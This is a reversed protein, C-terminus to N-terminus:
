AQRGEVPASLKGRIGAGPRAALHKSGGVVESGGMTSSPGLWTAYSDNIRSLGRVFRTTRVTPKQGGRAARRRDM